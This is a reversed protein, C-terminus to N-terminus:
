ASFHSHLKAKPKRAFFSVMRKSSPKEFNQAKRPSKTWETERKPGSRSTHKHHDMADHKAGRQSSLVQADNSVKTRADSELLRNIISWMENDQKNYFRATNAGSKLLQELYTTKLLEERKEATQRQVRDWM